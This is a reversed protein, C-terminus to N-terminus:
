VKHQICGFNQVLLDADSVCETQAYDSAFLYMIKRQLNFVTSLLLVASCYQQKDVERGERVEQFYEMSNLM